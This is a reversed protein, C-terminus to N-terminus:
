TAARPPTSRTGGLCTLSTSVQMVRSLMQFLGASCRSQKSNRSKAAKWSTSASGHIRVRTRCRRQQAWVAFLLVSSTRTHSATPAKGV